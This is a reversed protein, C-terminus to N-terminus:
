IIEVTYVGSSAIYIDEEAEFETKGSKGLVQTGDEEFMKFIMGKKIELPHKDTWIGEILIKCTRTNKMM